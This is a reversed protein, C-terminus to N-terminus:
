FLWTTPKPMPEQKNAKILSLVCRAVFWAAALLWVFFGGFFVIFFLPPPQHSGSQMAISGFIMAIWCVFTLVFLAFGIWFTYIHYTYHTKEWEQAESEGRWIYALIVGVVVSFGTFLNALYLIGVITPRQITIGNPAPAPPNSGTAPTTQNDTM